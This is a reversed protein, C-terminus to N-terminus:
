DMDLAQQALHLLVRTGEGPQSQISIGFGLRALIQRCLYLGIGTSSRETRGVAGTFGREFVRPLDEPPIGCGEDAVVLTDPGPSYVRVAGRATYKVANTFLQELVFCFWKEDTIVDGQVGGTDLALGKHIFLPACNKAAKKVLASLEFQELALDNELSSLRQYQLVMDVYQGIRFLEQEIDAKGRTDVGDGTSQLLLRMAAMPTKIQHAWLTYYEEADLRNKENERALRAREEELAAVIRGYDAQLLDDAEPLEDLPFQGALRGLARHRGAFRVFDWVALVIGAALGLLAAYGAVAWGLGYLAYVLFFFGFVVALYLLVVRRAALWHLFLKGKSIEM